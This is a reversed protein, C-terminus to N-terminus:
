LPLCSAVGHWSRSCPLEGNINEITPLKFYILFRKMFFEFYIILYFCGPNAHSCQLYTITQFAQCFLISTLSDLHFLLREQKVLPPFFTYTQTCCNTGSFYFQFLIRIRGWNVSVFRQNSCAEAGRGANKERLTMWSPLFVQM